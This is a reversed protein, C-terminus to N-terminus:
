IIETLRISLKEAWDKDTTDIKIIRDEDATKYEIHWQYDEYLDRLRLEWDSSMTESSQSLHDKYKKILCM